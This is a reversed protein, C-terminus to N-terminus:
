AGATRAFDPARFRTLTACFCLVFICMVQAGFLKPIKGYQTSLIASRLEEFEEIIDRDNDIIHDADSCNELYDNEDSSQLILPSKM